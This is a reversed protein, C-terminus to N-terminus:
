CKKDIDICLDQPREDKPFSLLVSFDDFNKNWNVDCNWDLTGDSTGDLSMIFTLNPSPM